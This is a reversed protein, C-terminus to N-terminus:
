QTLVGGQGDAVTPVKLTNVGSLVPDTIGNARAITTWSSADGYAQQATSFLNGGAQTVSRSGGTVAGLNGGMRGLVSNLNYLQPLTTMAVMQASLSAAATAVPSNPLVGGLTSVNSITNGTSAILVAVRSRVVALPGLVANLTSQAAKAFNSVASIASNLTGLATSLASDGISAGAASAAAMDARIAQDFSDPAIARVPSALDAVVTCTIRYPIKYRREFDASFSSVIVSYALESWSLNLVQGSTRLYDLYRARALANQGLMLGSWSLPMDSRGMADVVRVGGVLEHVALRQEGGFAIREPVEYSTFVFDGLKVQTDAM